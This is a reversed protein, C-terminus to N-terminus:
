ALMRVDHLLREWLPRDDPATGEFLERERRLQAAGIPVAGPTVIRIRRDASRGCVLRGANAEHPAFPVDLTGDLVARHVAAVLSASPHDFVRGLVSDVEQGILDAEASVADSRLVSPAALMDLVYQVARVSRANSEPSPIGLAESPTKIVVKDAAVLASITSAVAILQWALEPEVPFAGMWQHYVLRLEVPGLGLHALWRHSQDRLVDATALDQELNGSQGFSVAFSRVGQEAALVLECVQVAITIVPPVLTATLPGFSERHVPRDTPGVQACLRDVYQWHSLARDLPFNKSYPLTYSLGGGEIEAIGSALAVEVLLRADPTGHRLSVPRAIGEYLGRTAEVGHCVLPYGNLLDRGERRGVELLRAAEAYDNHRTVSDVTLPLFDAGAADLAQTLLRQQALDPVGGRPQVFPRGPRARYAVSAFRDPALGALFAASEALEVAVVDRAEYLLRSREAALDWRDDVHGAGAALQPDAM